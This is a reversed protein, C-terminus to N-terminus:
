HQRTRKAQIQDRLSAALEYQETTVAEDLREELTKGVSFTDRLSERLEILRAALENDEYDFEFEEEEDEVRGVADGVQVLGRNIASIAESANDEGAELEALAEAQTRHFLVFPRYSEHSATWQPDPSLRTSLDMLRLTHEADCIAERYMRLALWCIRRHYFQIFERDVEACQDESLKDHESWQLEEHILYDYYTAYGNPRAGDPRGETELQLVGMDIRMQIVDRSDHGEVLRVSISQPDYDWDKLVPDIHQDSMNTQEPEPLSSTQRISM